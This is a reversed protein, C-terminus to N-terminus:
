GSPAELVHICMSAPGRGIVGGGNEAIAIRPSDVQRKGAEGRLQATLEFIQALGSAGVPHGRAILGGGTNVPLRGDLATAGSESFAGGEGQACFGMEELAAIEGFATADHVEAVDADTPGLGAKEWAARTALATTDGGGELKGGALISARVRVARKRAEPHRRLYAESVLIAAASGDGVPACMARTIPWSVERDELVAEVTMPFTYQAYPNLTSNNHAKAAVVALQRQTLGYKEMHNRAGSGYMDMAPSHGKKKGEAAQARREEPMNEDYARGAEAWRDVDSGTAFSLFMKGRDENFVKEAGLALACDYLGAKVGTWAGHFASAGGGCANELNTVPVGDVGNASLAVQGRVGHQMDYFGWYSNAFWAAEIADREVGADKLVLDLAEGTLQKITRDPFKGFKIMGSGVIYVDESV